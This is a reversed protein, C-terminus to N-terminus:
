KRSRLYPALWGRTMHRRLEAISVQRTAQIRKRQRCITPLSRAAHWKSRLITRAQGRLAFWVVSVVALLLHQPLYWGLLPTPMNKFWTWELNRQAHYVTFDSRRGTVASGVHRVVAGPVLLCRHGALRLRFALDVDELYCFYREDFGGCALLAERRYCAAAACPGFVEREQPPAAAVPLGCGDRWAFGSVHYCDGEGDSLSPDDERVMPCALMAFEPRKSATDMLAALWAPEAFADANLLAVYDVNGLQRLAINNAAAFGVNSRLRILDVHPFQHEIDRLSEDTSANDVVVIRNAASHQARLSSLCRALYEGSNYNVILVAVTPPAATRGRQKGEPAHETLVTSAHADSAAPNSQQNFAAATRQTPRPM